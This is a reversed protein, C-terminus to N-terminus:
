MGGLARLVAIALRYRAQADDYANRVTVFANQADVVELATSEGAQYRLATLRLSETALEAAHRMTTVASQAALAENYATYLNGVLQRQTQSLQVQAQNRRFRAQKLKSNLGGWDWIPVNLTGTIFFGLNPLIGKEPDAAATSHLAFANAEIGYDTDISISPLFANRANKIDLGAESIALTAVRLDPNQKEALAQVEPFPPLALASDMDDVVTFNENLTPFLMVALNLRATEMVLKLDNYNQLQLQYQLDAKVVDARAVQGLREQQQSFDFFRQAQQVAQQATAYKRQAVVLAYYNRNVTTALGLRAVDVRTRAIAEAVQARQYGTQLYTNPSLDQRVVGWARYVHVGDNTIFRGSPTLGNGQTVLDQVTGSFQPFMASKAQRRDELAVQADSVSALYPSDLTQARDIADQLTILIPPGAAGQPQILQVPSQAQAPVFAVFLLVVATCVFPRM